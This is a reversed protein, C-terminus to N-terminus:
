FRGRDKIAPTELEVSLSNDSLTMVSFLIAVKRRLLCEGQGHTNGASMQGGPSKEQSPRLCAAPM